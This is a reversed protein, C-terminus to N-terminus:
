VEVATGTRLSELARFTARSTAALDDLDILPQGGSLVASCVQGIENAQGKDQKGLTNVSEKGGAYSVTTRFDDILFTRGGGFIEVREKPLGKDGESLYAITGNSGNSFKLTIFVSDADTVAADRSNISEAFVRRTLAGTLYHMLDIFHCVEGIIRGGGTEPDQIWHERGIRGGSVRYLISLPGKHEAFFNKAQLAAPSFRRNFGVMLQGSSNGAVALVSDLQEDNLALPKEVFVHKGQELARRALEAHTDHPTAVVVLNIVPDDIILDPSSVASGFGFEKAVNTATVGSATTVSRFEVDNARFNPLLMGRSYGGAGIM